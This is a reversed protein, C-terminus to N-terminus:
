REIFEEHQKDDVLQVHGDVVYTVLCPSKLGKIKDLDAFLKTPKDPCVKVTYTNQGTMKVDLDLRGYGLSCAGCPFPNGNLKLWLFSKKLIYDPWAAGFTITQGEAINCVARSDTKALEYRTLDSLLFTDKEQKALKGSGNKDYSTKISFTQATPDCTMKIIVDGTDARASGTLLLVVAVSAIFFMLFKKM